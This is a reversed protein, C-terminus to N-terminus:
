AFQVAIYIMCCNLCESNNNLWHDCVCCYIWEVSMIGICATLYSKHIWAMFWSAGRRSRSVSYGLTASVVIRMYLDHWSKGKTKSTSGKQEDSEIYKAKSFAKSSTHAKSSKPYKLKSHDEEDGSTRRKHQTTSHLRKSGSTEAKSHIKSERNNSKLTGILTSQLFRKNPKISRKKRFFENWYEFLSNIRTKLIM